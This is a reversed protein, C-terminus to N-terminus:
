CLRGGCPSQSAPTSHKSVEVDHNIDTLNGVAKATHVGGDYGYDFAEDSLLGPQMPRLIPWFLFRGPMLAVPFSVSCIRRFTVASVVAPFPAFLPDFPDSAPGNESSETSTGVAVVTRPPKQPPRTTPIPRLTGEFWPQASISAGDGLFRQRNTVYGNWENGPFNRSPKPHCCKRQAHVVFATCKWCLVLLTIRRTILM